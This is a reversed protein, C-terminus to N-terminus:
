INLCTNYLINWMILKLSSFVFIIDSNIKLQGTVAKSKASLSLSSYYMM